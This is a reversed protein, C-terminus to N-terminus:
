RTLYWVLLLYIVFAAALVILRLEARKEEELFMLEGDYCRSEMADYYVGAKKLSLVLINSAVGGFTSLSTKLNRYGLRSESSDKMKAFVDLLIFIYRYILNMLDIFGKPLHLLRLVSIIEASPTTLIMMQLSSIAAIIKLMIAGGSSLMAVTTYLYGFGIFLSYRGIPYGSFDVIIALISVFIFALPVSLVSLYDRLALGGVEVTLYAMSLVVIVSVYVNNLIICLLITVLSLTVKFVANWHRIKSSYAFYDISLWSGHKHRLRKHGHEHKLVRSGRKHGRRRQLIFAFAAIILMSCLILMREM